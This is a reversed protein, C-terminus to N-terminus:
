KRSSSPEESGTFAPYVPSYAGAQLRGSMVSKRVL